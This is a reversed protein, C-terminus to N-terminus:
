EASNLDPDTPPAFTELVTAVVWPVGSRRAEARAIAAAVTAEEHWEAISLPEAGMATFHGIRDDTYGAAPLVLYRSM